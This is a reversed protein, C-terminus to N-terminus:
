VGAGGENGSSGLGPQVSPELAVDSHSMSKCKDVFNGLNSDREYERIAEVIRATILESQGFVSRSRTISTRLSYRSLFLILKDRFHPSLASVNLGFSLRLFLRVPAEFSAEDLMQIFRQAARWGQRRSAAAGRVRAEFEDGPIERRALYLRLGGGLYYENDVPALDGYVRQKNTKEHSQYFIEWAARDM